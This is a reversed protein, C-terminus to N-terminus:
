LEKSGNRNEDCNLASIYINLVLKERKSLQPWFVSQAVRQTNRKARQLAKRQRRDGASCLLECTVQRSDPGSSLLASQQTQRILRPIPIWGFSEVARADGPPGVTIQARPLAAPAPFWNKNQPLLPIHFATFILILRGRDQSRSAQKLYWSGRLERTTPTYLSQSVTLSKWLSM